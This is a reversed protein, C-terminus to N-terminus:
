KYVKITVSFTKSLSKLVMQNSEGCKIDIVKVTVKFKVKHGQFEIMVQAICSYLLQQFIINRHGFTLFNHRIFSLWQTFPWQVSNCATRNAVASICSEVALGYDVYENVSDFNPLIDCNM